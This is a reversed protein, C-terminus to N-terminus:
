IVLELGVLDVPKERVSRVAAVYRERPWEVTGMSALHPTRLQVDFVEIGAAVVSRVCVALAVKSADTRRHFMSEASFLGGRQVGYLGGVLDEGEWAEISFAYWERHMRRYAAKMEPLLWTGDPRESACAEIVDDFAQNWTVRFRGQRIRRQLSRSVHLGDVPIVARPDPSWWLIPTDEDYWPFIGNGYASLLRDTSLDGGAAVLGGEGAFRPDPFDPPSDPALIAPIVCRPIGGARTGTM